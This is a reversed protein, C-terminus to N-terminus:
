LKFTQKTPKYIFLDTPNIAEEPTITTEADWWPLDVDKLEGGEYPYYLEKVTTPNFIAKEKCDDNPMIEYWKDLLKCVTDTLQELSDQWPFWKNEFVERYNSDPFGLKTFIESNYGLLENRLYWGNTNDKQVSYKIDYIDIVDKENITIQGKQYFDIWWGSYKAWYYLGEPTSSWDFSGMILNIGLDFNGGNKKFKDEIGYFKLFLRAAKNTHTNFTVKAM